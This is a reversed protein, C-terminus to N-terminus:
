SFDAEQPTVKNVPKPNTSENIMRALELFKGVEYGRMESRDLFMKLSDFQSPTLRVVIENM